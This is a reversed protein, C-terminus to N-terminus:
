HVTSRHAEIYSSKSKRLEMVGGVGSHANTQGTDDVRISRAQDSKNTRKTSIFLVLLADSTSAALTLM